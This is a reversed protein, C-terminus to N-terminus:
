SGTKEKEKLDITTKMAEILKTDVDYFLINLNINFEQLICNAMKRIEKNVKMFNLYIIFARKADKIQMEDFRELM